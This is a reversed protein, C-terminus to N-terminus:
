SEFDIKIYFIMWIKGIKKENFFILKPAPKKNNVNKLVKLKQLVKNEVIPGLKQGDIHVDTFTLDFFIKMKSIKKSLDVGQQSVDAFSWWQPWVLTCTYIWFLFEM